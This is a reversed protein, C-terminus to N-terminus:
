MVEYLAMGDRELIKRFGPTDSGIQEIGGWEDASYMSPLFTFASIEPKLLLVYSVGERDVAERVGGNSTLTDLQTRLLVSDVTEGSGEGSNGNYSYGVITRYYLNLGYTPYAFASGDFPVNIVLADQGVVRSVDNLFSLEDRDLMGFAASGSNLAVGNEGMGELNTKEGGVKSWPVYPVLGLAIALFICCIRKAAVFHRGKFTLLRICCSCFAYLGLSALPVASISAIAATRYPDTYWFGSLYHRILGEGFSSSVLYILMSFIFSLTLWFYKPRRITYAVGLFVLCAIVPQPQKGNFSLLLMNKFSDLRSPVTPDWHFQIVGQLPPLLYLITWLVGFLAILFLAAACASLVSHIKSYNAARFRAVWMHLVFPFLLVIAAFIANPQAFALAVCGLIFWCAARLRDWFDRSSFFLIFSACVAPLLSFAAANPFLPWMLLLGWPFSGFVPAMLSGWWVAKADNGLSARLAGLVGLPFVLGAFLANTANSVLATSAGSVSAILAAMAHWAAPYYGTGPVPNFGESAAYSSVALSSWNGSKIFNELVGYQHVNDYTQVISEAEDLSAIYLFATATMGVAVYLLSQLLVEHPNEESFVSECRADNNLRLVLKRLGFGMLCIAACSFIFVWASSRIGAWACIVSLLENISVALLPSCCISLTWSAGCVRGIVVGPVLFIFAGVLLATVFLAWM